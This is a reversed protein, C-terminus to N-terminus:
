TKAGEIAGEGVVDSPPAVPLAELFGPVVVKNAVAVGSALVTVATALQTTWPTTTTPMLVMTAMTERAAM